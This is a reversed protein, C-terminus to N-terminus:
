GRGSRRGPPPRSRGPSTARRRQTLSCRFSTTWWPSRARVPPAGSRRRTISATAPAAADRRRHRQPAHLAEAGVVPQAGVAQQREGVVQRQDGSTTPSADATAGSAVAAASSTGLPSSVRSRAASGAEPEVVVEDGDAPVAFSVTWQARPRRGRRRPRGPPRPRRRRSRAPRPRRADEGPAPAPATRHEAAPAVHGGGDDGHATRPPAAPARGRTRPAAPRCTSHRSRTLTTRRRADRHPRQGHDGSRSAAPRPSHCRTSTARPASSRAACRRTRSRRAAPQAPAVARRPANAVNPPATCRSRARARRRRAGTWRVITSVGATPAGAQPREDLGRRRPVAQHRALRKGGDADVRHAAPPPRGAGPPAASVASLRRAGRPGGRSRPGRGRTAGGRHPDDPRPPEIRRAKALFPLAIASIAARSCFSAPYGWVDATRGLVPQTVVGGSSSMLSDFSLITARQQSPIRENLYAQRIPVSAAFLLGWVVILVIAVWFVEILGILVM